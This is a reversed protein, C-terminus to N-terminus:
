RASRGRGFMRRGAWRIWGGVVPVSLSLEYCRWPFSLRAAQERALADLVDHLFQVRGDNDGLHAALQRLEDTRMELTWGSREPDPLRVATPRFCSAVRCRPHRMFQHWLAKDPSRGDPPPHWGVALQRYMAKRYGVFTPAGAFGSAPRSFLRRHVPDALNVPLVRIDDGPFFHVPLTVALDAHKLLGLLTEVHDPLWLDDDDLHCVIEGRAELVGRHRNAEGRHPAKPCDLFRVRGDQRLLESVLERTAQDVGDGVILVEIDAVSQALASAVSYRLLPGRNHTAIFATARVPSVTSGENQM